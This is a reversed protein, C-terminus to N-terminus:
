DGRGAEGILGEVWEEAEREGLEDRAKAAYGEDLYSESVLPRALDNLFRSIKRRGIRNQLGDYVDEDVTITLKRAVRPDYTGRFTYAVRTASAGNFVQRGPRLTADNEPSGQL